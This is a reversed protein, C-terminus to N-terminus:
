RLKGQFVSNIVVGVVKDDYTTFDELTTEINDLGYSLMRQNHTKPIFGVEFLKTKDGIKVRIANSDYQNDPQHELEVVPEWGEEKMKIEFFKVARQLNTKAPEFTVGVISGQFMPMTQKEPGM